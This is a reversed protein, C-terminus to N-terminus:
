LSGPSLNKRNAFFNALDLEITNDSANIISFNFILDNRFQDEFSFIIQLEDKEKLIIERGEYYWKEEEITDLFYFLGWKINNIAHYFSTKM